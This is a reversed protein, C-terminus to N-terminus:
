FLDNIPLSGGSINWSAPIVIFIIIGPQLEPLLNVKKLFFTVVRERFIETSRM